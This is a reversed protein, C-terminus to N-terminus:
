IMGRIRSIGNEYYRSAYKWTKFLSARIARSGYRKDISLANFIEWWNKAYDFSNSLKDMRIQGYFIINQLEKFRKKHNENLNYFESKRYEVLKNWLYEFMENSVLVIDIDSAENFEVGIKSPNLSFGVKASGVITFDQQHISLKNCVNSRFEKYMNMNNKFCYPIEDFLLYQVIEEDTHTTLYVKFEEFSM